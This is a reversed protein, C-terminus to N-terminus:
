GHQPKNSVVGLGGVVTCIPFWVAIVKNVDACVFWSCMLAVPKGFLPTTGRKFSDTAKLAPIKCWNNVLPQCVGSHCYRKPQVTKKLRM